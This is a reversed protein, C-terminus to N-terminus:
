YNQCDEVDVPGGTLIGDIINLLTVVRPDTMRYHVRRGNQEGAVLGCESLCRLHNSANPQSLHTADVIEGM